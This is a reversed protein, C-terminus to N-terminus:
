IVKRFVKILREVEWLQETGASIRLFPTTTSARLATLYVRTTSFGFSTGAILRVGENRAIKIGNSIFKQYAHVSKKKGVFQPVLFAGHFKSNKSWAYSWHTEIGPYAVGVLDQLGRAILLANRSLRLMRDTLRKRNPM